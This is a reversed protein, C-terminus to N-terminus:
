HLAAIKEPPHSKVWDEVSHELQDYSNLVFLTRHFEHPSPDVNEFAELSYPVLNVEHTYARQLEAYSSMLGAGLAKLEGDERILGFEITYWWLSGLSKRQEPTYKIAHLAFRHIYDAYWQHAMFPLHGFTDHFIDPLPTYNLDKRDRIYETILFEKRALAEFWDQGSSYQIETSVLEWGVLQKFRQNLQTFNPIHDPTLGIKDMGDLYLRTAFKQVQPLQQEFMLRWTVNDDPTFQHFPRRVAMIWNRERGPQM